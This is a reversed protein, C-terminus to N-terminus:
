EALLGEGENLRKQRKNSKVRELMKLENPKWDQGFELATTPDVEENEKEVHTNM